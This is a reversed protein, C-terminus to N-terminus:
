FDALIYEVKDLTLSKISDLGFNLPQVEKNKSLGQRSSGSPLPLFESKLRNVLQSPLESGDPRIWRSKNKRHHHNYTRVQMEGDLKRLLCRNVMEGYTGKSKFPNEADHTGEEKRRRNVMSAYDANIILTRDDLKWVENCGFISQFSEDTVRSKKNARGKTQSVIRTFYARKGTLSELLTIIELRPTLVTDSMSLSERGHGSPSM